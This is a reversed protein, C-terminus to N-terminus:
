VTVAGSKIGLRADLAARAQEVDDFHHKTTGIIQYNEHGKGALLVVDGPQALAIIHAIARARAPQWYVRDPRKFGARIDAFIQAPDETRPNDDTVVVVDALAEASAAMKPRKVRDRDGGCGFLCLLRGTTLPRLAKLVNELADHTHAYDVFVQFPQGAPTGGTLAVPELRGPAGRAKALTARALGADVGLAVAAAYACLVNEVNYKGVLPTSMFIPQKGGTLVFTTGAASLDIIEASYEYGTGIGYRVVKARCDQVMRPAYPDAGNIVATASPALGAFLKAKAAAYNAMDGHYDLHDGTLNTFMAVAFEMGAVRQQDLAHSSTEMVVATCQNQAMARLLGALQVASPTTMDSPITRVGDDLEVTGLLGCRQGAAQLISRLLYTVTTKGNTGTVGALQMQRTPDAHVYHAAEALARPLDAVVLVPVAAVVPQNSVVAVAGAKIADAIYRTGDVKTGQRAFFVSGPNVTRSDEAVAHIPLDAAPAPVTAGIRRALLGLTITQPQAM